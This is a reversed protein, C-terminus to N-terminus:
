ALRSLSGKAKQFHLLSFSSQEEFTRIRQVVMEIPIIENYPLRWVLCHQEMADIFQGYARTLQKLYDLPLDAECERGRQQVRALATEPSVELYILLDPYRLHDKMMEYALIYTQYDREDIMESEHLMMAFVTDGYISRDEICLRQRQGWVSALHNGYRRFLLYNQMMAAIRTERCRGYKLDTYFDALYPNDRTPEPFFLADLRQALAEALTSKGAGIIGEICIHRFKPTLNM